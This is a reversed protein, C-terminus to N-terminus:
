KISEKNWHIIYWVREMLYYMTYLHCPARPTTCIDISTHLTAICHQVKLIRINATCYSFNIYYWCCAHMHAHLYSTVYGPWPHIISSILWGQGMYVLHLYVPVTGTGYTVIRDYTTGLNFGHYRIASEFRGDVQFGTYTGSYLVITGSSGLLLHM